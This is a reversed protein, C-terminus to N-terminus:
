KEEIILKRLIKLNDIFKEPDYVQHRRNYGPVHLCYEVPHHGGNELIKYDKFIDAYFTSIVDLKWVCVGDLGRTKNDFHNLGRESLLFDFEKSIIPMLEDILFTLFFIRDEKNSNDWIKKSCWIATILRIYQSKRTNEIRNKEIAWTTDVFSKIIDKRNPKSELYKTLFLPREYDKVAKYAEPFSLSDLSALIKERREEETLRKVPRDYERNLTDPNSKEKVIIMESVTKLSANEGKFEKEPFDTLKAYLFSLSILLLICLLIDKRM